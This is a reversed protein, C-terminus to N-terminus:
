RFSLAFVNGTKRSPVLRGRGQFGDTFFVEQKKERSWLDPM